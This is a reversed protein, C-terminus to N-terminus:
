NIIGQAFNDLPVSRDLTNYPDLWPPKPFIMNEATAEAPLLQGYIYTGSIRYVPTAGDSTTTIKATEYHENLLVWGGSPGNSQLFVLNPAPLIPQTGLKAATWDAVWLLTPNALRVFAVTALPTGGQLGAKSLGLMYTHQDKEYRGRIEYSTDIGGIGTTTLLSQIGDANTIGPISPDDPVNDNGVQRNDRELFPESM